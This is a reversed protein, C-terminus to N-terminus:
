RWLGATRVNAIKENECKLSFLLIRLTNLLKDQQVFGSRLMFHFAHADRSRPKGTFTDVM